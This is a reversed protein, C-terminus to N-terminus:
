GCLGSIPLGLYNLHDSISVPLTLSDMCTPDEGSGDCVKYSSQDQTYWVERPAHKYGMWENPLHPVIDAYHVVRYLADSGLASSFAAAFTDDGDRPHGFTYHPGRVNFGSMHMDYIAIGAMAAGLSHGTIVTTYANLGNVAQKIQPALALYSTYFGDAMRCGSCSSGQWNTHVASKIDDIWDQLKSPQTGRFSVLARGDTMRGVFAQLDLTSDQIVTVTSAVVRLPGSCAQGCSWSQITAADCYAAGALYVM